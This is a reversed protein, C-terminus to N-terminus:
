TRWKLRKRSLGSLKRKTSRTPLHAMRSSNKVTDVSKEVKKRDIMKHDSGFRENVELASPKKL